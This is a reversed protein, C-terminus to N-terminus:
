DSEDLYLKQVNYRDEYQKIENKKKDPCIHKIHHAICQTIYYIKEIWYYKLYSKNYM